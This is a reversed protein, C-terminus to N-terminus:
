NSFISFSVLAPDTAVGSSNFTQLINSDLNSQNANLANEQVSSSLFSSYNANSMAISYNVTYQGVGNDTVSSVNFSDRIAIVGTGNFNVWARCFQGVENGGLEKVVPPTNATQSQIATTKLTSM